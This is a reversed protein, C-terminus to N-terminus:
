SLKKEIAEVRELHSKLTPLAETAFRKIDADKASKSTKEFAAIDKKHDKVMQKVYSRDFSIGKQGELEKMEERGELERMESKAEANPATPLSVGKTQALSKLQDNIKGHEKVM